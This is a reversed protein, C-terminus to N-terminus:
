DSSIAEILTQNKFGIENLTEQLIPLGEFEDFSNKIQRNTGELLELITEEFVEGFNNNSGAAALADDIKDNEASNLEAKSFDGDANKKAWSDLETVNTLAVSRINAALNQTATRADQSKIGLEAVRAIEQQQAAIRVLDPRVSPTSFIISIAFIVIVVFILLGGVGLFLRKRKAAPDDAPTYAVPAQQGYSDEPGM